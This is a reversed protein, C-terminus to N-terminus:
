KEDVPKRRQLSRRPVAGGWGTSARRHVGCGDHEFVLTGDKAAAPNSCLGWDEIFAGDLPVFFRCDGCQYFIWELAWEAVWRDHTVRGHEQQRYSPKATQPAFAACGQGPAMLCADQESDPNSCAGWDEAFGGATPVFFCCDACARGPEADRRAERERWRKASAACHRKSSALGRLKRAM